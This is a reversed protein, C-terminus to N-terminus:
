PVRHSGPRINTHIRDDGPGLSVDVWYGEVQERAQVRGTELDVVYTYYVSEGLDDETINEPEDPDECLEVREPNFCRFGGFPQARKIELLLCTPTRRLLFSEITPIMNEPFGDFHVYTADISGDPLRVGLHCHTGM